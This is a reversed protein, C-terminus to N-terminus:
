KQNMRPWILDIDVWENNKIVIELAQVLVEDVDSLDFPLKKFRKIM